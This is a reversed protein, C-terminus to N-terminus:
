LSLVSEQIMEGLTGAQVDRQSLVPDTCPWDIGTGPDDWRCGFEDSGDFARNVGYLYRAPIRFYFGHAVGMPINVLMPTEAQLNIMMATNRSDSKPRLDLLGLLLEGEIVTLSDEHRTHLHLGRLVNEASRVFNWQVPPSSGLSWEDRHVETLDGRDDSNRTLLRTKLGFIPLRDAEALEQPHM